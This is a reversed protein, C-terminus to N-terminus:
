QKYFWQMPAGNGPSRVADDNTLEAPFNGIANNVIYLTPEEGVMGIFCNNERNITIIEQVFARADEITPASKANDWAAWADRIWHDAPPEIGTEGDSSWWKYYENACTEWGLYRRPDASVISSRDLGGFYMDLENNARRDELLSREIVRPLGEIGIEAWYSAVLELIDTETQTEMVITLREGDPGLRFGEEDRETLGMEDLLANAADPDYETWLNEYEPDFYPSGSVPSAQRPEALGSFVLENITERDIAINLAQIFRSDAYLSALVENTTNLNPFLSSTSANRWLVVRYDGNAENEKYLTFNAADVHRAQVDIEGQIIMLNFAERDEFFRHEIRDIYPLQNGAEDVGYYYPNRVMVVTNAPPPVEIMWPTIVPLEPNFWWAQIQGSSDWLDIWNEVSYEDLIAALEEESAYNPHFQSLYHFPQIFSPRDLGPAGTSEKALIEPFLPYPASFKVHFTQEDIIEVTLPEGNVQYLESISPTLEENLFIDEYWFQVDRTTVPHGDSWRLGEKLTFSFTAGNDLIEWADIYGPVLEITDSDYQEFEVIREELLKTPGWRDSPGTFGRVVTGGYQGIEEYVPFVRPNVPLREEVPPLEGAEVMEALMPAENYESSDQAVAVASLLLLSMLSLLITRFKM